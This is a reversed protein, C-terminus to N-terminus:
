ENGLIMSYDRNGIKFVLFTQLDLFVKKELDLFNM